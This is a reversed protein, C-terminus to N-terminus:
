SGNKLERKLLILLRKTEIIDKSLSKVPRKMVVNAIYSDTVREMESRRYRKIALKRDEKTFIKRKSKAISSIRENREIKSKEIRKKFEEVDKIGSKLFWYYMGKTLKQKAKKNKTRTNSYQKKWNERYDEVSCNMEECRKKIRREKNKKDHCEKCYPRFIHYIAIGNKNQQKRKHIYFFEETKPFENLCSNCKKLKPEM